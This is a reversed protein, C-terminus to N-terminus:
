ESDIKAPEYHELWRHVTRYALGVDQLYQSFTGNPVKQNGRNLGRSDLQERAEYLERCIDNFSGIM